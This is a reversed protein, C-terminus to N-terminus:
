LLHGLFFGIVPILEGRLISASQYEIMSIKSAQNPWFRRGFITKADHIPQFLLIQNCLRIKKSKANQDTLMAQLSFTVKCHLSASSSINSLCVPVSLSLCPLVSLSCLCLCLFLGIWRFFSLWFVCSLSPCYDTPHTSIGGKTTEYYHDKNRCHKWFM